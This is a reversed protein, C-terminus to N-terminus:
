GSFPFAISRGTKYGVVAIELFHIGTDQWNFRGNSDTLASQQLKQQQNKHNCLAITTENHFRASQCNISCLWICSFHCSLVIKGHPLSRIRYAASLNVVCVPLCKM